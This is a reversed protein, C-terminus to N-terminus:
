RHSASPFPPKFTRIEMSRYGTPGSYLIPSTPRTPDSLARYDIRGTWQAKDQIAALKEPRHAVEKPAVARNVTNVSITPPSGPRHPLDTRALPDFSALKLMGILATDSPIWFSPVGSVPQALETNLLLAPSDDRFAIAHLVFLGSQKLLRRCTFLGEQPSSLHHLTMSLVILDFSAEGFKDLLDELQTGPHYIVRNARLAKKALKFRTLNYQCTADVRAAGMHNLVFATLGDYTGLDMCRMGGVSIETLSRFTPYLHSNPPEDAPGVETGVSFDGFDFAHFWNTWAQIQAQLDVDVIV